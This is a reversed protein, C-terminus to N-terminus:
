KMTRLDHAQVMAIRRNGACHHAGRSGRRPVILTDGKWM